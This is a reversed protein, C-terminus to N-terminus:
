KVKANYHDALQNATWGASSAKPDQPIMTANWAEYDAMLRKYVEPQRDKLNARELPDNAVNFLFANNAIGSIELAKLVRGVQLDLQRVM